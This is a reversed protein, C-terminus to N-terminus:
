CDALENVQPEMSLTDSNMPSTFRALPNATVAAVMKAAHSAIRNRLMRFGIRQRGESIPASPVATVVSRIRDTQWAVGPCLSPATM